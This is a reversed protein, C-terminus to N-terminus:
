VAQSVGPHWNIAPDPNLGLSSLKSALTRVRPWGILDYVGTPYICVLTLFDSANKKVSPTSDFIIEKFCSFNGQFCSFWSFFKRM